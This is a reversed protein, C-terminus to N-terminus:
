TTSKAPTWKAVVQVLALALAVWAWCSPRAEARTPTEEAFHATGAISSKLTWGLCDKIKFFIDPMAHSWRKQFHAWKWKMGRFVSQEPGAIVASHPPICRHRPHNLANATRSSPIGVLRAQRCTVSTRRATETAVQGSEVNSGLLGNPTLPNIPPNPASFVM